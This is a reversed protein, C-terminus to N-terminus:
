QKRNDKDPFVNMGEYLPSYADFSGNEMIAPIMGTCENSSVIFAQWTNDGPERSRNRPRKDGTKKETM